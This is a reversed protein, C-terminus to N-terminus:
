SREQRWKELYKRADGLMILDFGTDFMLDSIYEMLDKWASTCDNKLHGTGFCKVCRKGKYYIRIKKGSIPLFQPPKQQLDM